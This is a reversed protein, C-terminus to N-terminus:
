SPISIIQKPTHITVKEKTEIKTVAIMKEALLAVPMPKQSLLIGLKNIFNFLAIIVKEGGRITDKQRILVPPQFLHVKKFALSKVMEELTGKIKPYFFASGKNAGLSSVLILQQVGNESAAKATEYQYTVDITYQKAKSGAQKLTTGLASFLVEGQLAKKWTDVHDFDVIHTELKPHLQEIPRRVFVIVKTYDADKLLHRLLERGTAGTGGILLATRNKM